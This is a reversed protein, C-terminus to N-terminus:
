QEKLFEYGRNQLRNRLEETFDVFDDNVVAGKEFLIVDYKDSIENVINQMDKLYKEAPTITQSSPDKSQEFSWVRYEQILQSTNVTALNNRIDAKFSTM